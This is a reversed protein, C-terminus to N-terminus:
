DFQQRFQEFAAKLEDLEGELEAVKNELTEIRQNRAQVSAVAPESALGASIPAEPEVDGCLLHKYRAEKQGPAPPMRRWLAPDMDEALFDLEKEVAEPDPFIHMRETRTRLEGPTQAGRLLLVTLLAKGAKALGLTEDVHHRYKPVRSGAVDMRFALKKARLGEIAEAVTEEDYDVVPFRNTKQNCATILSNLTLPYVDPTTAEKELLCGLVRAEEATLQVLEDPSESM